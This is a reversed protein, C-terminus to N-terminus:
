IHTFNLKKALRYILRIVIVKKKPPKYNKWFGCNWNMPTENLINFNDLKKWAIPKPKPWINSSITTVSFKTAVVRFFFVSQFFSWFPSFLCIKFVQIDEATDLIKIEQPPPVEFVPEPPTHDGNQIDAM